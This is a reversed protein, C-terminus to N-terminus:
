TQPSPLLMNFPLHRIGTTAQILRHEKFRPLNIANTSSRKFSVVYQVHTHADDGTYIKLVKIM